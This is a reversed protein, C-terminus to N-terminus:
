VPRIRLSVLAASRGMRCGVLNSNTILRLVALASPRSIGGISSARASSTISHVPALEDQSEAPRGRRPRQVRARLLRCHGNDPKEIGPRTALVRAEQGSEMLAELFDAVDLAAVYCHFVAERLTLVISQRCHRGIQNM